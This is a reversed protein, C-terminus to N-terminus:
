QSSIAGITRKIFTEPGKLRMGECLEFSGM